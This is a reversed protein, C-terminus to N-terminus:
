AAATSSAWASALPSPTGPSGAAWPPSRAGSSPPCPSRTPRWSPRWGSTSTSRPSSPSRDRAMRGPAGRGLGLVEDVDHDHTTPEDPQPTPSSSSAARASDCCTSCSPTSTTARSTTPSHESSAAQASGCTGSGAIAKSRWSVPSRRARSCDSSRRCVSHRSHGKCPWPRVEWPSREQRTNSRVPCIPAELGSRFSFGSGGTLDGRDVARRMADIPPVVGTWRAFARGAQHVLMGLGGVASLGAAEAARLLPTVAPHYVLDAVICASECTSPDFPVATDDGMGSRPPTSSWTAAAGVGGLDAVRGVRGALAAAARARDPRRAAVAVEEAGALPSPGCSPVHRAARVSWSAGCGRRISATTRACRMSSGAVTPTTASSATATEICATSRASPSPTPRHPPRAAAAVAAKHPM